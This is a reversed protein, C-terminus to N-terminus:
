AKRIIIRGPGENIFVIDDGDHLNVTNMMEQSIRITGDAGLKVVEEIGRDTKRGEVIIDHLDILVGDLDDVCKQMDQCMEEKTYPDAAKTQNTKTEM